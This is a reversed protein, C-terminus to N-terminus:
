CVYEGKATTEGEELKYYLNILFQANVYTTISGILLLAEFYLLIPLVLPLTFLRKKDEVLVAHMKRYNFPQFKLVTNAIGKLKEFLTFNIETSMNPCNKASTGVALKSRINQQLLYDHGLLLYRWFIFSPSPPEHAAKAQPHTLIKHGNLQCLVYSHTSCNGRYLPLNLPIPNEILFSRRFAVNNLFYNKSAYLSERNSFRPFFYHMAIAMEYINRIPTSTEGAVVNIDPHTTFTSLISRIWTPVYICDSDCYVVIEGTALTAGLMKAEYYGIGPAQHITIWPYKTCLETMVEQPAYGGDIVLFEHAQAPSIDQTVISSLSRFINELEVSALNETEFVISFSPLVESDLQQVTMERTNMAM